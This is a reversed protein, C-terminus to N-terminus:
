PMSSDCENQALALALANHQRTPSVDATEGSIPVVPRAHPIYCTTTMSLGTTTPPDIPHHQGTTNVTAGKRSQNRTSPRGQWEAMVDKQTEALRAQRHEMACSALCQMDSLTRQFTTPFSGAVLSFLRFDYRMLARCPTQSLLCFCALRFRGCRQWAALQFTADGLSADRERERGRLTQVHQGQAKHSTQSVVAAFSITVNFGDNILTPDGEFWCQSICFTSRSSYVPSTRNHM